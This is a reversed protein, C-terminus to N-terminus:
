DTTGSRKLKEFIRKTSYEEGCGKAAECIRNIVSVDEELEEAIVEPKKAKRLKKCVLSILKLTEGEERGEEKGEERGEEKGEERGEEKGEERLDREYIERNFTSLVMDRVEGRCKELLKRLIDDRICDDIASEVAEEMGLGKKQYDRICQIFLAYEKLQRCKEMLEANHGYNINLLTATCEVCSTKGEIEPFADTLKMERRDPEDETGNYFIYYQPLPFKQLTRGYMNLHNQAIYSEFNRALYLLGRMPMNPNKTSQHEYLNLMEGMLFSMDNKIGIYVADNLTYVILEDPDEYSTDNMANYLSLQDEADQFALCFVGDKHERNVHYFSQNATNLKTTTQNM